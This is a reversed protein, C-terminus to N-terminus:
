FYVGFLRWTKPHPHQLVRMGGPRFGGQSGISKIGQGSGGPFHCKGPHKGRAAQTDDSLPLAREM